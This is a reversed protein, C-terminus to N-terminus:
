KKTASIVTVPNRALMMTGTKTKRSKGITIQTIDVSEFDLKEITQLVSYLTEILIVGIVIRGGSKIKNQCLEVIDKTDGGTGGIFITDVQPLESIKDKANGEILTYNTIGFKKLNKETLEIANPDIDVGIVKGSEEVQIAAEITVSGSGCGIDLVTQGASLRGKSIQIARIEEKTIPVSETREFEEDPIGPTKSKWM